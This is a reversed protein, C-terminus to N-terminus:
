KVKGFAANVVVTIIVYSLIIIVLGIIANTLTKKGKEASDSNGGSTAMQYGGMVIYAMAVLGAFGLLVKILNALISKFDTGFATSFLGPAPNCVLSKTPDCSSQASVLLPIVLLVSLGITILTKKM